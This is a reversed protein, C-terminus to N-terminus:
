DYISKDKVFSLKYQIYDNDKTDFNESSVLYVNEFCTRYVFVNFFSEVEGNTDYVKVMDNKLINFDVQLNEVFSDYNPIRRGLMCDFDELHCNGKEFEEQLIGLTWLFAQYYSNEVTYNIARNIDNYQKSDTLQRVLGAYELLADIDEEDQLNNNHFYRELADM